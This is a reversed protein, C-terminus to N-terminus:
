KSVRSGMSLPPLRDAQGDRRGLVGESHLGGVYPGASPLLLLFVSM